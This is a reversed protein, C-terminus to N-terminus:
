LAEGIKSTVLKAEKDLNLINLIESLAIFNNFKSIIEEKILQLDKNTNTNIIKLVDETCSPNIPYCDCLASNYYNDDYSISFKSSKYINKKNYEQIFGCYNNHRIIDQSFIRFIYHDPLNINLIAEKPNSDLSVLDAYLEKVKQAGRYHVLDAKPKDKIVPYLDGFTDTLALKYNEINESQQPEIFVAKLDPREELIRLVQRSLKSIDGIYVDPKTRDFVDYSSITKSDHKSATFGSFAAAHGYSIISDDVVIKM